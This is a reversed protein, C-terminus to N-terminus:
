VQFLADDSQDGQCYHGMLRWRRMSNLEYRKLEAMLASHHQPAVWEAGLDVSCGATHFPVTWTRGGVRDAEQIWMLGRVPCSERRAYAPM